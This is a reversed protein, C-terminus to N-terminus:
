KRRLPEADPPPSGTGPQEGYRAVLASQRDLGVQAPLLSSQGSGPPVSISVSSLNADPRGQWLIALVEDLVEEAPRSGDVHVDGGYSNSQGFRDVYALDVEDVSGLDAIQAFLDEDPVPTYDVSDEEPGCATLAVLLMVVLYAPLARRRRTM